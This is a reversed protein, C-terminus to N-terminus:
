VLQQYLGGNKFNMHSSYDLLIARSCSGIVVYSEATNSGHSEICMMLHECLIIQQLVFDM